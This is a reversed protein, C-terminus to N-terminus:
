RGGFIKKLDRGVKRTTKNITRNFKITERKITRDISRGTNKVTNGIPKFVQRDVTKFANSISRNAQGMSHNFSKGTNSLRPGVNNIARGVPKFVQRDFQNFSRHISRDTKRFEHGIAQGHHSFSAAINQAAHSVPRLINQNLSGIGSSNQNRAAQLQCRYWISDTHCEGKDDVYTNVSEKNKFLGLKGIDKGVGDVANGVNSAMKAPDTITTAITNAMKVGDKATDLLLEDAHEPDSILKGAFMAGDVVDPIDVGLAAEAAMTGVGGVAGGIVAGKATRSWKAGKKATKAAYHRQNVADDGAFKQVAPLMAKRKQLRRADAAHKRDVLRQAHKQEMRNAKAPNEKRVENLRKQFGAERKAEAALKPQLKKAEELRAQSVQRKHDELEAKDMGEYWKDNWGGRPPADKSRAPVDPVIPDSSSHDLVWGIGGGVAAGEAAAVASDAAIEAATLEDKSADALVPTTTMMISLGAIASLWRFRNNNEM